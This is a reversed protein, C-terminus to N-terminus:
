NGNGKASLPVLRIIIPVPLIGFISRSGVIQKQYIPMLSKGDLLGQYNDIGAVELFTPFYDLGCIPTDSTGAAITGRWNALAPVHLGGEYVTGKAGRLRYNTSQLGNFGNDSTFIIICQQFISILEKRM